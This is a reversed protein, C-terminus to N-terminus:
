DLGRSFRDMVLQTPSSTHSTSKNGSDNKLYVVRTTNFVLIVDGNKYCNSYLLEEKTSDNVYDSVLFNKQAESM